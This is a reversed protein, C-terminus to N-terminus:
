AGTIWLGLGAAALALVLSGATYTTFRVWRRQQALRISEVSAASFTTYGGCFGTGAITRLDAAAGHAIVLGTLVGLVLSGSVNITLTAIPFDTALARRAWSDVVYRSMAGAGGALAVWVVIV